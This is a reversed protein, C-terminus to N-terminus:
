QTPLPHTEARRRGVVDERKKLKDLGEEEDKTLNLYKGSSESTSAIEMRSAKAERAYESAIRTLECKM